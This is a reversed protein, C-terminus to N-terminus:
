LLCVDLLFVKSIKKEQKWYKYHGIHTALDEMKFLLKNLSKHM